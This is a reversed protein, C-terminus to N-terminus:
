TLLVANAGSLCVPVVCGHPQRWPLVSLAGAYLPLPPLSPPLSSSSPTCHQSSSSPSPVFARIKVRESPFSGKFLCVRQQWQMSHTLHKLELLHRVTARRLNTDLFLPLQHLILSQMQFSRRHLIFLLLLLLPQM